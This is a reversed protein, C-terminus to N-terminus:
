QRLTELIAAEDGNELGELAKIRAEIEESTSAMNAHNKM